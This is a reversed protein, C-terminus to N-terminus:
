KSEKLAKLAEQLQNDNEFTPQKYYEDDLSVEIDPKVGKGELWKGKSTLWKETTFKISTGNILSQSKQITGKGYTTEGVLIAKEYNDKFCSALIEAASASSSDMLIAVPYDKTLSNLSYVKKKNNKSQIQYLVTKKDFFKSLIKRTQDVHGGPNSRVDLVLVDIKKKDMRLMAKEFQKYSNSSFANIRIYGVNLDEYDFVKNTVIDVEIVGRKITLEKEKNGRKVTIKVKSGVKGETITSFVKPEKVIDKGNVKVILDDVKLGGKEAPSSKKVEIIKYYGSEQREVTVGIGIFTGKITTNFENTTNSDMYNTYPDGLSNVMGRIAGESLKNKDVKGYYNDTINHYVNVIEALNKDYSSSKGVTIIYGVIIGFLISILIIIVVEFISFTTNTWEEEKINFMKNKITTLLSKNKSNKKKKSKQM